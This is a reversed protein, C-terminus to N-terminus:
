VEECENWRINVRHGNVEIVYGIAGPGNYREAEYVKGKEPEFEDFLTLEETVKIKVKEHPLTGPKSTKHRQM